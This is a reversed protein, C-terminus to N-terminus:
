QGVLVMLGEACIVGKDHTYIIALV